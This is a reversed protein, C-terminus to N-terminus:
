SNDLAVAIPGYAVATGFSETSYTTKRFFFFDTHIDNHSM